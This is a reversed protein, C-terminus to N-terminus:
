SGNLWRRASRPMANRPRSSSSSWRGSDETASFEFHYKRSELHRHRTDLLCWPSEPETYARVLASVDTPAQKLAQEVREAEFLVEAASRVLAWRAQIAPDADAWFRPLRERVLAILAPTAHQHLTQELHQLLAREICPFTEHRTLREIPWKLAGLNLAQEVQTAMRLYSSRHARSDRWVRVLRRCSEIGGPNQAVPVSAPLDTQLAASLETLLLHRGLAGRWDALTNSTPRALDFNLELLRQLDSTAFKRVIEPDLRDDHLFALAVDQPNASSFILNLVGSSLDRGQDALADLDALSLKGAEVQLEIEAIQEESLIPKLAHRAVVSLRTNCAPPQQRPQMVTGACDLEILASHTAARELPVYVVLRPPRSDNLLPDVQHRLAIFSGDYRALTTDPWALNPIVQSYVGEPDYWVVVGREEVQKLILQALYATVVGPTPTVTQM